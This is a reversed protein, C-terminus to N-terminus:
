SRVASMATDHFFKAIHEADDLAFEWENGYLRFYVYTDSYETDDVTQVSMDDRDFTRGDAVAAAMSLLEPNTVFVHLSGNWASSYLNYYQISMVWMSVTWEDSLPANHYEELVIRQDGSEYTPM